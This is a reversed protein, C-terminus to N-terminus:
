GPQQFLVRVVLHGKFVQHGTVQQRTLKVLDDRIQVAQTIEVVVADRRVVFLGNENRAGHLMLGDIRGGKPDTGRGVLAVLQEPLGGLLLPGQVAQNALEAAAVEEVVSEAADANRRRVGRPVPWDRTRSGSLVEYTSDM